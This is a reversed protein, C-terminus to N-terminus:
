SSMSSWIGIQFPTNVKNITISFIAKETMIKVLKDSETQNISLKGIIMITLHCMFLAELM